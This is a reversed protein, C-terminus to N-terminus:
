FRTIFSMNVERTSELNLSARTLFYFIFFVRNLYFKTILINTNKLFVKILIIDNSGRVM